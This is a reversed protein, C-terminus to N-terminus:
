LSHQLKGCSFSAAMTWMDRRSGCSGTCCLSCCVKQCNPLYVHAQDSSTHMAVATVQAPSLLSVHSAPSLMYCLLSPPVPTTLTHALSLWVHPAHGSKNVYRSRQPLPPRYVPIYHYQISVTGTYIQINTMGSVPYRNYRSIDM